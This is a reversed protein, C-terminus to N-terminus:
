EMRTRVVAVLRTTSDLVAGPRVGGVAIVSLPSVAPDSVSTSKAVVSGYVPVSRLKRAARM